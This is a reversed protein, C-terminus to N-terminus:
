NLIMSFSVQNIILTLQVVHSFRFLRSAAESLQTVNVYSKSGIFNQEVRAVSLMIIAVLMCLTNFTFFVIGFIRLSKVKLRQEGFVRSKLIIEVFTFVATSFSYLLL